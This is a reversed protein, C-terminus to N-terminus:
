GFSKVVMTSAVMPMAHTASPAPYTGALRAVRTSGIRASRHSHTSTRHTTHRSSEWAASFGGPTKACGTEAQPMPKLRHESHQCLQPSFDAGYLGQQVKRRGAHERMAAGGRCQVAM